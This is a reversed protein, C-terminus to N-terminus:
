LLNTFVNFEVTKKGIIPINAAWGDYRIDAEIKFSVSLPNPVTARTLLIRFQKQIDLIKSENGRFHWFAFNYSIGHATIEPHYINKEESKDVEVSPGIKLQGWTFKFGGKYGAKQIVPDKGTVTLPQMDEIKCDSIADFNVALSLQHLRCKQDLIADLQFAIETVMRDSQIDPHNWYNINSLLLRNAKVAFLKISADLQPQGSSRTNLQEEDIQLDFELQAYSNM